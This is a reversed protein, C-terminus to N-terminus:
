ASDSKAKRLSRWSSYSMWATFVGFAAILDTQGIPTVGDSISFVVYLAIRLTILGFVVIMIWRNIRMWKNNNFEEITKALEKRRDSLPTPYFIAKICLAFLLFALLMFPVIVTYDRSDLNSLGKAVLFAGLRYTVFGAILAVLVRRAIVMKDQM